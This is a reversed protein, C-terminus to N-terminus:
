KWEIQKELGAFEKWEGDESIVKWKGFKKVMPEGRFYPKKEPEPEPELNIFGDIRDDTHFFWAVGRSRNHEMNWKSKSFNDIATLLQETSFLKLRINIKEKAKKTLISKSNINEKYASYLTDINTLNPKTLNLKTLNLLASESLSDWETGLQQKIPPPILKFERMIGQKVSPNLVQNKIFNKIVIWGDVYFVRKETEFRSLIKNVMESDIGTDFAIRRLSIEYVGCISTLPNTLFYLFLLKEIPDLNIIYTDDWFKTSIIRQKAM